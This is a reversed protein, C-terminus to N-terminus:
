CFTIIIRQMELHRVTDGLQRHQRPLDQLAVPALAHAAGAPKCKKAICIGLARYTITHAYGNTVSRKRSM